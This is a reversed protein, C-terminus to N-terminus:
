SLMYGPDREKAQSALLFSQFTLLPLSPLSSPHTLCGDLGLDTLASAWFASFLCVRPSVLLLDIYSSCLSCPARCLFYDFKWPWLIAIFLKIQLAIADYFFKLYFLMTVLKIDTVM